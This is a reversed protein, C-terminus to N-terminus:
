MKEGSPAFAEDATATPRGLMAGVWPGGQTRGLLTGLAVPSLGDATGYPNYLSEIPCLSSAPQSSPTTHFHARSDEIELRRGAMNSGMSRYSPGVRAWEWASTHSARMTQRSRTPGVAVRLDVMGVSAEGQHQLHHPVM